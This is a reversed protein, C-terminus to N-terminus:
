IRFSPLSIGIWRRSKETRRDDDDDRITTSGKNPLVVVAVLGRSPAIVTKIIGQDLTSCLANGTAVTNM